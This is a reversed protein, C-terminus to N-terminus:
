ALIELIINFPSLHVIHVIVFFDFVTGEFAIMNTFDKSIRLHYNLTLTFLVLAEKAHAFVVRRQITFHVLIPSGSHFFIIFINNVNLLVGFFTRIFAASFPNFLVLTATSHTTQLTFKLEAPRTHLFPM